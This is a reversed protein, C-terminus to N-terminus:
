KKHTRYKVARSHSACLWERHPVARASDRAQLRGRTQGLEAPDPAAELLEEQEQPKMARLICRKSKPLGSFAGSVALSKRTVDSSSKFFIMWYIEM